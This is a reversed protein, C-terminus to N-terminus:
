SRLLYIAVVWATIDLLGAIIFFAPWIFSETLVIGRRALWNIALIELSVVILTM